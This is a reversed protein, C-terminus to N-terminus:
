LKKIFKFNFPFRYMRFLFEFSNKIYFFSKIYINLQLQYNNVFQYIQENKIYFFDLEPILPFSFYNLRYLLIQSKLNFFIKNKKVLKETINILPLYINVFNLLFSIIKNKKLKLKFIYLEKISKNKLLLINGFILNILIYFLLLNKKYQKINIIFFLSLKKIKPIYKFNKM